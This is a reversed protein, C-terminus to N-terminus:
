WLEQSALKAGEVLAGLKVWAIRPDVTVRGVFTGFGCDTGAIVRERGVLEAFRVIRQAVLEPHEVYNTCTDIVGPIILKDEPLKLDAFVAWEHEHRPNAGEFSIASPRAELVLDLVARLPVDHTHPGAWNGWCLHMRMRDPPLGELAHNLAAVHMRTTARFAEIGGERVQGGLGTLDPCDVQLVLDADVIARYEVRMADALAYLYEEDSKYYTNRLFSAITGPSVATMFLETPHANGVGARLNAIDRQVANPDKVTVPGSCAPLQRRARYPDAAKRKAWEPFEPAYESLYGSPSSVSDGEFGTLRDKVYTAYSVKGAEGDNVVDLGIELQHLVTEAVAERAREAFGPGERGEDKEYLLQVLDDPRPLSGVHTTLIRETSRQM